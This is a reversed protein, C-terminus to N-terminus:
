CTSEREEGIAGELCGLKASIARARRRARHEKRCPTVDHAFGEREIEDSDLSSEVDGIAADEGWLARFLLWPHFDM